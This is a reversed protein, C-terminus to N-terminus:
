FPPGRPSPASTLTVTSHDASCGPHGAAALPEPLPLFLNERSTGSLDLGTLVKIM